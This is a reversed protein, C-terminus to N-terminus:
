KKVKKKDKEEKAAAVPVAPAAPAITTYLYNIPEGKVPKMFISGIMGDGKLIGRPFALNKDKDVQMTEWVAAGDDQITLRFNSATYGKGSLWKSSVQGEPTFTLADTEAKGKGSELTRYVTWEKASLQGKVKQEALNRQRAAELQKQAAEQAAKQALEKAKEEENKAGSQAKKQAFVPSNLSLGIVVAAGCVTVALLGKKM